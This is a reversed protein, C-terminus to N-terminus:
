GAKMRSSQSKRRLAARAMVERLAEEADEQTRFKACDWPKKLTWKASDQGVLRVFLTERSDFGQVIIWYAGDQEVRMGAGKCWEEMVQKAVRYRARRTEDLELTESMKLSSLITRAQRRTLALTLTEPLQSVVRLAGGCKKCVAHKPKAQVKM